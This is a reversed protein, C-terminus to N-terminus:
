EGGFVFMELGPEPKVEVLGVPEDIVIPQTPIKNRVGLYRKMLDVLAILDPSHNLKPDTKGKWTDPECDSYCEDSSSLPEPYLIM